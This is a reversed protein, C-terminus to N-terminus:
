RREKQAKWELACERFRDQIAGSKGRVCSGMFQNYASPARKGRVKGAPLTAIEERVISRIDECSCVNEM